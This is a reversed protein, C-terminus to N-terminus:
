RNEPPWTKSPNRPSPCPPCPRRRHPCWRPRVYSLINPTSNASLIHPTQQPYIRLICRYAHCADVEVVVNIFCYIWLYPFSVKLRVAYQQVKQASQDATREVGLETALRTWTKIERDEFKEILQLLHHVNFTKGDSKPPQRFAKQLETTDCNLQVSPNCYLIFAVYADDLTEDTVSRDPLSRDTPTFAPLIKPPVPSSSPFRAGGASLQDPTTHQLSFQSASRAIDTYIQRPIQSTVFQNQLHQQQQHHNHHHQPSHSHVSDSHNEPPSTDLAPDILSQQRGFGFSPTTASQTHHDHDHHGSDTIGQVFNSEDVDDDEEEEDGLSNQYQETDM